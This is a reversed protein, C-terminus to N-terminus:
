KYTIYKKKILLDYQLIECNSILRSHEQSIDKLIKGNKDIINTNTIIPYELYMKEFEKLYWPLEIGSLELVNIGLNGTSMIQPVKALDIDYNAWIIYPTQYYEINSYNSMNYLKNNLLSPLHDGFMILVTPEKEEKLYNVLKLYMKNGDYLGQVYNKIQQQEETTLNNASVDIDYKEYNKENYPMHNQMTVGFIFKNKNNLEYQQIIQNAFENDSIHKGKYEPEEIDEEFITNDFGLYKYVNKRNYFTQTNTHIGITTYDNNKFTRVLSNMDSRIQSTYPYTQKELFYSTLGTLVEFEPLSTGGGCVPTIIDGMKCNKDVDALERLEGLPDKSFEVNKIETPDSFSENMILIINPNNMEKNVSTNTINEERIKNINEQSYNYPQKFYLDGLHMFFVTNAGSYHYLNGLDNQIKFNTFRNSDICTMFIIAVGILFLPIRYLEQKWGKIDYKINLKKEVLWQLLLFVILMSICLIIQISPVTLGFTAIQNINGILLVDAPVFPNQLIQYKYYSILTIVFVIGTTTINSIFNNKIISKVIFFLACLIIYSIIFYCKNINYINKLLNISTNFNKFLMSYTFIHVIFIYM